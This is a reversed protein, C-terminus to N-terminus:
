IQIEVLLIMETSLPTNTQLTFFCALVSRRQSRSLSYAFQLALATSLGHYVVILLMIFLCFRMILTNTLLCNRCIHVKRPGGVYYKCQSFVKALQAFYPLLKNDGFV